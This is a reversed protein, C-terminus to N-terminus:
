IRQENDARGIKSKPNQVESEIQTPAPTENLQPTESEEDEFDDELEEEFEEKEEEGRRRKEEEEREAERIKLREKVQFRISLFFSVAGFVATAFARDANGQWMFYAAVGALIVALVQFFREM